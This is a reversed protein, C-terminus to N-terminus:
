MEWYDTGHHQQSGDTCICSKYKLLDSTPSRKWCYSWIANLLQVKPPLTTIDHFSFVRSQTLGEIESTQAQVFNSCDHSKLMASQTLTDGTNTAAIHAHLISSNVAPDNSGESITPTDAGESSLFSNVGKSSTACPEAMSPNVATYIHGHTNNQLRWQELEPSGKNITYKKRPNITPHSPAGPRLASFASVPPTDPQPFNYQDLKTSIDDHYTREAKELLKDLLSDQPFSTHGQIATFTEDFIPHYQPTVHTTKINYVLAM